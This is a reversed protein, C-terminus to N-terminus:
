CRMGDPAINVVSVRSDRACFDLELVLRMEIMEFCWAVSQMSTDRGQECGM